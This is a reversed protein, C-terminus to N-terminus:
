TYEPELVSENVYVPPTPEIDYIRSAADVLDKLTGFPFYHVQQKFQEAVDYLNQENDKRRIRRSIRYAGGQEKVKKQNATINQETTPYPLYFKHSRIDPGLRQV